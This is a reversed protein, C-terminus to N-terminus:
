SLTRGRPVSAIGMMELLSLFVNMLNVQEYLNTKSTNITSMSSDSYSSVLGMSDELVYLSDNNLAVYSLNNGNMSNIRTLLAQLTMVNPSARESTGQRIDTFLPVSPIMPAEQSCQQDLMSSILSINKDSSCKKNIQKFFVKLYPVGLIKFLVRYTFLRIRPLYHYCLFHFHQIFKSLIMNIYM